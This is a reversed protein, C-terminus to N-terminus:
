KDFVKQATIKGIKQIKLIHEKIEIDTDVLELIPVFSLLVFSNKNTTSQQIEIEYKKYLDPVNKRTYISIKKKKDTTEFLLFGWGQSSSGKLLKVFKGTIKEKSLNVM